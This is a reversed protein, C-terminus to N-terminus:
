ERAGPMEPDPDVPDKPDKGDTPVGGPVPVDGVFTYLLDKLDIRYIFGGQFNTIYSGAGNAVDTFLSVTIFEKGNVYQGAAYKIADQYLKVKLVIHPLESRLSSADSTSTTHQKDQAYFVYGAAKNDALGLNRNSTGYFKSKGAIPTAKGIIINMKDHGNLAPFSIEKYKDSEAIQDWMNGMCLFTNGESTGKPHWGDTHYAKYWDVWGTAAQTGPWPHLYPSRQADRVKINNLFISEVDIAYVRNPYWKVQGTETATTYHPQPVWGANDTRPADIEGENNYTNGGTGSVRAVPDATSGSARYWYYEPIYVKNVGFGNVSTGKIASKKYKGDGDATEGSAADYDTVSMTRWKNNHGDVWVAQEAVNIGGFVEMRSLYPKVSFGMTYTPTETSTDKGTLPVGVGYADTTLLVRDFNDNGFLYDKENGDKNNRFNFMNINTEKSFESVPLRNIVVDIHTSNKPLGVKTGVSPKSTQAGNSGDPNRYNGWVAEKVQDKTLDVAGLLTGAANYSLVTVSYIKPSVRTGDVGDHGDEVARTLAKNVNISINVVDASNQNQDGQIEKKCSVVAMLTLVWLLAKKM